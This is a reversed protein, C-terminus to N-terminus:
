PSCNANLQMAVFSGCCFKTARPLQVNVISWANRRWMSCAEHYAIHTNIYKSKYVCVCVFQCVCVSGNDLKILTRQWYEHQRTARLQQMCCKLISCANYKLLHLARLCDGPFVAKRKIAICWGGGSSLVNDLKLVFHLRFSTTRCNETILQSKIHYHLLSIAIHHLIYLM